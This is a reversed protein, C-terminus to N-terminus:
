ASIRKQITRGVYFYRTLGATEHIDLKNMVQQRHKEVTKISIDLTQAIQKNARGEAILRLVEEERPSLRAFEFEEGRNFAARKLNTLRRAIPASFYERGEHAERIAKLLEQAASNKLVYGCVGSEIARAVLDDTGYSSLVVIKINPNKHHIRRTAEIGDLVPMSLDMLVVDPNLQDSKQVAQLGDAAEGVVVMDDAGELISRLGQRVMAHDESILVNINASKSM